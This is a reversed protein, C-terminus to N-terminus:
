RKPSALAFRFNGTVRGILSGNEDVLFEREIEANDLHNVIKLGRQELYLDLNGDDIAFMLSEDQHHEKMSLFFEKVGYQTINEESIQVL